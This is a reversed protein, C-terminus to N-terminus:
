CFGPLFWFQKNLIKIKIIADVDKVGEWSM